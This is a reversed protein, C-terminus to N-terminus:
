EEFMRFEASPPPLKNIAAAVKARKGLFLVVARGAMYYWDVRQKSETAISQVWKEIKAKPAVLMCIARGNEYVERDCKESDAM